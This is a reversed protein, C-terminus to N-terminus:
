GLELTMDPATKALVAAIRDYFHSRVYSQHFGSPATLILVGSDIRAELTAFWARYIAPDEENLQAAISSWLSGDDPVQAPRFPIVNGVPAAEPPQSLRSVLDPGVNDWVPRTDELIRNLDLGHVAVRGRAAARKEVLWGRARIAAIERKVTRVDVSWMKAIEAQGVSLVDAQWNYRATILSILRLVQRQATKDQAMAYVSLVTLLDYKRTSSGRGVAKKMLM